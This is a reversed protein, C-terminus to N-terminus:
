RKNLMYPKLNPFINWDGCFCSGRSLEVIYLVVKLPRVILRAGFSFLLFISSNVFPINRYKSTLQGEDPVKQLDSEFSEINVRINIIQNLQAAKVDMGKEYPDHRLMEDKTDMDKEYWSPLEEMSREGDHRFKDISKKWEDRKASSFSGAIRLLAESIERWLDVFWEDSIELIPNHAFITNRFFRIRVLDSALSRDYNPPLVNWGTPPPVLNCIATLLKFLLTIEFNGSTGYGGSPLYLRDQEAKTLGAVKLQKLTAPHSLVTPLNAPPHIFDFLDRFLTLGGCMLLRVLRQYNEKEKTTLLAKDAASLSTAM